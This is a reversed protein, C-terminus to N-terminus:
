QSVEMMCKTFQVRTKPKPCPALPKAGKIPGSYNIKFRLLCSALGNNNIDLARCGDCSSEIKGGNDKVLRAVDFDRTTKNGSYEANGIQNGAADKLQVVWSRSPKLYWADVTNGNACKIPKMGCYIGQAMANDVYIKLYKHEHSIKRAFAFIRM